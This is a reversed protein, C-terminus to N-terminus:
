REKVASYYYNCGEDYRESELTLGASRLAHEYAAQGLSVSERGTLVDRWTCAERPATFLLKGGPELAQTLRAIARPQEEPPLLFIVGIAVVGAFTRGFFSSEELAACEVPVRPFRRRFETVMRPSADLAYVACRANLLLQCGPVGSGCGVDLVAAGAPLTAAWELMVLAGIGPNRARMFAEACADYGNAPDDGM